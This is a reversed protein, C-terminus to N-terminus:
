ILAISPFLRKLELSLPRIWDQTADKQGDRWETLLLEMFERPYSCRSSPPLDLGQVNWMYYIIVHVHLQM